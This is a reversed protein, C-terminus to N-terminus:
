VLVLAILAAVAAAKRSWNGMSQLNDPWSHCGDLLYLRAPYVLKRHRVRNPLLALQRFADGPNAPLDVRDCSRKVVLHFATLDEAPDGRGTARHVAQHGLYHLVVDPRM